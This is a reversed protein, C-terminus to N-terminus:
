GCLMAVNQCLMALETRYNKVQGNTKSHNNSNLERMCRRMAHLWGDKEVASTAMLMFSKEESVVLM